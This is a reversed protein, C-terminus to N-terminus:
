ENFERLELFQDRCQSVEVEPFKGCVRACMLISKDEFRENWMTQWAHSDVIEEITHIRLDLGDMGGFVTIAESLSSTSDKM